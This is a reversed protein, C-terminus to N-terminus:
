IEEGNEDNDGNIQKIGNTTLIEKIKDVAKRDGVYVSKKPNIGKKVHFNIETFALSNEFMGFGDSDMTVTNISFEKVHDWKFFRENYYFGNPLIYFSPVRFTLLIILLVNFLIIFYSLNISNWFIFATNIALATLIITIAMITRKQKWLKVQFTPKAVKGIRTYVKEQEHHFTPFLFTEALSIMDKLRVYHIIVFFFTVVTACAVFIKVM